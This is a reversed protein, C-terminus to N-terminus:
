SITTLNNKNSSSSFLPNIVPSYLSQFNIISIMNFGFIVYYLKIFSKKTDKVM